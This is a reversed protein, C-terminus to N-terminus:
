CRLPAGLGNRCSHEAAQPLPIFHSAVVLQSKIAPLRAVEGAAGLEMRRGRHAISLGIQEQCDEESSEESRTRETDEHAYGFVPLLTAQLGTAGGQLVLISAILWALALKWRPACGWALDPTAILKRSSRM